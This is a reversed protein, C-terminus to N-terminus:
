QKYSPILKKSALAVAGGLGGLLAGSVLMSFVWIYDGSAINTIFYIDLAVSATAAILSHLVVRKKTLFGMTMGCLFMLFYTFYVMVVLLLIRNSIAGHSLSNTIAQYADKALRYTSICLLYNFILLKTELRISNM